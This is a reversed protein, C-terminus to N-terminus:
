VSMLAVDQSTLDALEGKRVGLGGGGGMSMTACLPVEGALVMLTSVLGRVLVRRDNCSARVM